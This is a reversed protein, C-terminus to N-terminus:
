NDIWCKDPTTKDKPQGWEAFRRRDKPTLVSLFGELELAIDNDELNDIERCNDVIQIIQKCFENKNM